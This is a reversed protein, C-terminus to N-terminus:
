AIVCTSGTWHRRRRSQRCDATDQDTVTRCGLFVSNRVGRFRGVLFLRHHLHHFRGGLFVSDLVLRRLFNGGLFVSNRLRDLRGVLFLRHHLRHFRGVLFLRHHLGRRGDEYGQFLVWALKCKSKWWWWWWWCSRRDDDYTDNSTLDYFSACHEM